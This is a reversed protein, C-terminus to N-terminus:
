PTPSGAPPTPPNPGEAKKSINLRQAADTLREVLTIDLEAVVGSADAADFVPRGADDVVTAAIWHAYALEPEARAKDTLAMFDRASLRRVILAADDGLEPAPVTETATRRAALIQDKTLAM